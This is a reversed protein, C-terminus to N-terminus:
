TLCRSFGIYPTRAEYGIMGPYEYQIDYVSCVHMNWSM